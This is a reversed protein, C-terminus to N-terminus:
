LNISSLNDWGYISEWRSSFAYNAADICVTSLLNERKFWKSATAEPSPKFSKELIGSCNMGIQVYDSIGYNAMLQIQNSQSQLNPHFLELLAKTEFIKFYKDNIFDSARQINLQLHWAGKTLRNGFVNNYDALVKALSPDAVFALWYFQYEFDYFFKERKHRQNFVAQSESNEAFKKYAHNM